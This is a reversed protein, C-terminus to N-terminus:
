ITKFTFGVNSISSDEEAPDFKTSESFTICYDNTITTFKKNALSIKGGSVIYVKNEEIVPHFRQACTKFFTGQIQTGDMDILDINFLEGSGKANNWTKLPYKKTVRVKIAWDSSFTNLAKVPLYGKDKVPSAHM